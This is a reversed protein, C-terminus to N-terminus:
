DGVTLLEFPRQFKRGAWHRTELLPFRQQLRDLSEQTLMGDDGVSLSDTLDRFRVRVGLERECRFGFELLEISEGQLADVFSTEATMEHPDVGLIDALIANVKEFVAADTPM